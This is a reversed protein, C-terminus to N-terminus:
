NIASGPRALIKEVSISPRAGLVDPRDPDLKLDFTPNPVKSQEIESDVTLETTAIDHRELDIVDRRAIICGIARTNPLLLGAPRDLKLQRLCRSLGDVVIQLSGALLRAVIQEGAPASRVATKRGPLVRTQESPPNDAHAQTRVQKPCM